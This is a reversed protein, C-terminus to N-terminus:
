LRSKPLYHYSTRSPRPQNLYTIRRQRRVLHHKRIIQHQHIRRLAPLDLNFSTQRRLRQRYVARTM